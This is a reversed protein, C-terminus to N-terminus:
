LKIGTNAKYPLVVKYKKIKGPPIFPCDKLLSFAEDIVAPPFGNGKKYPALLERLKNVRTPLFEIWIRVATDEPWIFSIERLFCEFEKNKANKYFEKITPAKKFRASRPEPPNIFLLLSGDPDVGLFQESYISGQPKGTEHFYESDLARGRHNISSSTRGIVHPIVAKKPIRNIRTNQRLDRIDRFLKLVQREEERTLVNNPLELKDAKGDFKNTITNDYKSGEDCIYGAEKLVQIVEKAREIDWNFRRSLTFFYLFGKCILEMDTREDRRREPIYRERIDARIRPIIRDEIFAKLYDKTWYPNGSDNDALCNFATPKLLSISHAFREAWKDLAKESPQHDPTPFLIKHFLHVSLRSGIIGRSKVAAEEAYVNGPWFGLTAQTGFPVGMERLRIALDGFDADYYSDRWQFPDSHQYFMYEVWSNEKILQKAILLTMPFPMHYMPRGEEVEAECMLCYNQCTTSIQFSQFKGLKNYKERFARFNPDDFVEQTFPNKYLELRPEEVSPLEAVIEKIGHYDARQNLLRSWTLLSHGDQNLLCSYADLIKHGRAFSILLNRDANPLKAKLAKVQPKIGRM